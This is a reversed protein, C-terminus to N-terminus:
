CSCSLSKLSTEGNLATMSMPERDLGAHGMAEAARLGGPVALSIVLSVPIPIFAM